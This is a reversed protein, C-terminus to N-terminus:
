GPFYKLYPQAEEVVRKFSPRESLRRFYAAVRAHEGFPLLKEAYFLAPAAACDALTVEDSVAYTTAGLREELVDYATALEKRALEVGLADNKGAPRLKDTVIKGVPTNVYLDFFRDLLRCELASATPILREGGLAELIISTELLVRDGDTVVPIKGFPSLKRYEAREAEDMLHVTRKEFPLGLEYLGMAVKMSFSSLPHYHLISM